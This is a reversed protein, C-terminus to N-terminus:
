RDPSYGLLPQCSSPAYLQKAKVQKFLAMKEASSTADQCQTMLQNLEDKLNKFNPAVSAIKPIAPASTAPASQPEHALVPKAASQVSRAEHAYYLQLGPTALISAEPPESGASAVDSPVAPCGRLNNESMSTFFEYSRRGDEFLDDDSPPLPSLERDMIKPRKSASPSPSPTLAEYTRKHFNYLFPDEYLRDQHESEPTPPLDLLYNQDPEPVPWGAGGLMDDHYEFQDFSEQYQQPLNVHAAHWHEMETEAVSPYGQQAAVFAEPSIHFRAALAMGPTPQVPVPVSNALALLQLHQPTPVSASLPETVFPISELYTSCPAYM